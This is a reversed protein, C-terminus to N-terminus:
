LIGGFTNLIAFARYHVLAAQNYAEAAEWETAFVGLYRDADNVSIDARWRGRFAKVGKYRSSSVWSKRKARANEAATCVRLNSKRNDLRDGNVHDVQSGDPCDTLLRHMLFHTSVRSNRIDSKAYGSNNVHWLLRSVKDFDDADIVAHRGQTLPICIAAEFPASSHQQYGGRFFRKARCEDLEAQCGDVPTYPPPSVQKGNQTDGTPHSM